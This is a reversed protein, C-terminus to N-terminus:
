FSYTTGRRIQIASVQQIAVRGQGIGWSDGDLPLLSCRSDHTQQVYPYDYNTQQDDYQQDYQQDQYQQDQYQSQQDNLKAQVTAVIFLTLWFYHSHAANTVNRHIILHKLCQM